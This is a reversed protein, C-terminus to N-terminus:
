RTVTIATTNEAECSGVTVSNNANRILYYGTHTSDWTGAGNPSVPLAGLYGETVIGSMDVCDDVAAVLPCTTNCGTVTVADSIQYETGATLASVTGIYSGGNDVQDLKVAGILATADTWRSSDRADQFRTLPDLATFAVAALIALIAIVILLEVLTFGRYKSNLNM